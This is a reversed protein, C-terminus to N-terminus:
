GTKGAVRVLCGSPRFRMVRSGHRRCALFRDETIKTPHGMSLISFDESEKLLLAGKSNLHREGIASSAFPRNEVGKTHIRELLIEHGALPASELHQTCGPIDLVLAPKIGIRIRRGVVVIRKMPSPTVLRPIGHTGVAM